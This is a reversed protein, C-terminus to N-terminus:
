GKLGGFTMGEIYQKQTFFFLIIVPLSFIVTAAMLLAWEADNQSIFNQLGLSLTYKKPDNLYILPGLFDKWAGLFAFLGVTFLVPKSLPLIIHYYIKLDGCGDVRAADSLEDPITMYFQRILFIFFANGFFAPVILPLSSPVWNFNKFLIFLPIMTVSFPLMMTGILIMFLFDRGPWSIRSFGYAIVSNSIMTGLVTIVCIFLTNKLYLGFPIYNIAVVYNKWVIPRPILRPPVAFIQVSSKLSTIIMWFFPLGFLVGFLILLSVRTIKTINQYNNM